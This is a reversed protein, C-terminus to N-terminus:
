VPEPAPARSWRSPELRNVWGVFRAVPADVPLLAGPQFRMNEYVKGDEGQLAFFARRTLFMLFRATLAGVWGPRRRALYIPQVLTRGPGEPRYAFIMYLEPLPTGGGFWSVGRLITLCGISGEAYRMKYSYTPGLLARVAREAPRARPLEGTLTIDLLGPRDEAVQMDMDIDIGHVTRLHQPDIGNIMTVHHHCARTYPEGHEVVLDEGALESHDVVPYPAVRDPWVWVFGYKEETAWAELRAGPPHHEPGPTGRAELAPIGACRGDGDWRWHHFFCRLTDGVVTGIGLDTGMHPCFGDLCRVRGDEGRFLVVKQGCLLLSRATGRPLAASPLAVYWAKAVVDWNNFVPMAKFPQTRANLDRLM